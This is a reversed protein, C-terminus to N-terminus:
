RGNISRSCRRHIAMGGPEHGWTKVNRSFSAKSRFSTERKTYINIRSHVNYESESCLTCVISIIRGYIANAENLKRIFSPRRKNTKKKVDKVDGTKKIVQKQRISTCSTRVFAEITLIRKTECSDICDINM